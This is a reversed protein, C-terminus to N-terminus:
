ASARGLRLKLIELAAYLRSKVTSLPVQIAAAIEEFTLDQFFKLEVVARQEPSLHELALRVRNRTEERLFAGEHSEGAPLRSGISADARSDDLSYHTGTPRRRLRSICQNMAIRYIWTSFRAEQRFRRISKFASLFVEQTSEAAEEPDQLMRLALNYIPKEWKLVLRNFALTDGGRSATVWAAEQIHDPADVPQSRSNTLLVSDCSEEMVHPGVLSGGSVITKVGEGDLFDFLSRRLLSGLHFWLHVCIFVSRHKDTNM